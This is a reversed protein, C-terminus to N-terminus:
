ADEKTRLKQLIEELPFAEMEGRKYADWRRDLEEKWAAEYSAVDVKEYPEELSDVLQVALEALEERNLTLAAEFFNKLKDSM